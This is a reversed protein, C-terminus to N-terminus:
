LRVTMNACKTFNQDLIKHFVLPCIPVHFSRANEWGRKVRLTYVAFSQSKSRLIGGYIGGFVLDANLARRQLRRVKEHLLTKAASTVGVIGHIFSRQFEFFEGILFHKSTNPWNFLWLWCQKYNSLTSSQAFSQKSRMKARILPTPDEGAFSQQM